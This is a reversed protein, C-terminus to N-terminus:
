SGRLEIDRVDISFRGAGLGAIMLLGGAIAFNKTFFLMQVPDSLNAHFIIATLATFGALLTAAARAQWGVILMLGAVIEFGIVVPLLAGPLGVSDMYAQTGAYAGIKSFGAYAFMGGLLVRGALPAFSALLRDALNRKASGQAALSRSPSLPQESHTM